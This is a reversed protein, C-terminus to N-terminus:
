NWFSFQQPAIFVMSQGKLIWESISIVTIKVTVRVHAYCLLVQCLDPDLFDNWVRTRSVVVM